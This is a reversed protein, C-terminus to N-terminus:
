NPTPSPIPTPWNSYNIATIQLHENLHGGGVLIAQVLRLGCGNMGVLKGVHLGTVGDQETHIATGSQLLLYSLPRFNTGGGGWVNGRRPIVWACPAAGTPPGIFPSTALWWELTLNFDPLTWPM